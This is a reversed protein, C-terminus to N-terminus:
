EYLGSIWWWVVAMLYGVLSLGLLMMLGGVLWAEAIRTAVLVPDLRSRPVAPHSADDPM